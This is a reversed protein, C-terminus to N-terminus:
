RALRRPDFGHQADSPARIRLRFHAGAVDAQTFGERPDLGLRDGLKVGLLEIAIVLFVGLFVLWGLEKRM